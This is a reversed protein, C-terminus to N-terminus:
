PMPARLPPACPQCGVIRRHEVAAEHEAVLRACKAQDVPESVDFGQDAGEGAVFCLRVDKAGTAAAQKSHQGAHGGARHEVSELFTAGADPKQRLM